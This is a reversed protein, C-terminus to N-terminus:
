DVNRVSPVDAPQVVIEADGPVEMAKVHRGQCRTRMNFQVETCCEIASMNPQVAHLEASVFAAKGGIGEVDRGLESCLVHDGHPDVIPRADRGYGPKRLPSSGLHPVVPPRVAADDAVYPQGGAPRGPDAALSDAGFGFGVAGHNVIPDDELTRERRNRAVCRCRITVCRCRTTACRYRHSDRCKTRVLPRRRAFRSHDGQGGAGRVNRHRELELM